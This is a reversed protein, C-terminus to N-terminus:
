LCSTSMECLAGVVIMLMGRSLRVRVSWCCSVRQRGTKEDDAAGHIGTAPAWSYGCVLGPRAAARVGRGGRGTRRGRRQPPMRPQPAAQQIMQM